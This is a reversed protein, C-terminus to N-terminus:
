AAPARAALREREYGGSGLHIASAVSCAGLCGLWLARAGLTGLVFSGLAPGIVTSFGFALLGAGQYSARLDATALDGIVAPTVPTFIIEGLTWIAITVAYSWPSADLATAGFGVGVLLTGLAMVQHRRAGALLRVSLPQLLVILVGNIAILRGYGDSGIGNARMALPLATGSQMFVAFVLFQALLFRLLRVDRYPRAYDLRAAPAAGPRSEPVRAFVLLGFALTTAADVTFLWIFGHKALLGGLSTAAAFGLNAAWYLWAFARTRLEPPVVDVVAASTAPRQLEGLLGVLFVGAALEPESRAFGLLFM